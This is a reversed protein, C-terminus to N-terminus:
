YLQKEIWDTYKAVNTYVGPVDKTGCKNPGFSVIGYLFHNAKIRKMLPGGSDGTCTDKGALGGACLQTDRLTIGYQRLYVTACQNTDAVNLDVKLKIPSQGATETRGWGAAVAKTGIIKRSRSASDTPLCIPKIYDSYSVDRSLRILAIDDYQGKSLPDYSEHVTIRDIDNDLPLDACVGDVCDNGNNNLDYEGLRVGIVEWGSPIADICHAATLVYRSNILSGGCNYGPKGNPKRYLILASWPYEKLDTAQGGIIRDGVMLGCQPPRPLNRQASAFSALALLVFCPLQRSLRVM